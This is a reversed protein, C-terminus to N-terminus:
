PVALSQIEHGRRGLKTASSKAGPAVGLTPVVIGNTFLSRRVTSSIKVLRSRKRAMVAALKNSGNPDLVFFHKNVM